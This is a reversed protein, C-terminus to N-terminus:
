QGDPDPFKYNLRKGRVYKKNKKPLPPTKANIRKRAVKRVYNAGYDVKDWEEDIPKLKFTKPKKDM